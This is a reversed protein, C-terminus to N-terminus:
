GRRPSKAEPAPYGLLGDVVVAGASPEHSRRGGDPMVHVVPVGRLLVAADAILRRHCRWWVFESCMVALTGDAEAVLQDLAAGFEESRMHDAYARFAEVRWWGDREARDRRVRRRGGLRPEWRYAVGSEPLWREMAERAMEPDRRSGPYRRVDVVSAVGATRLRAILEARDSTDHGITLLPGGM